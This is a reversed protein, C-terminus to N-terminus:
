KMRKIEQCGNTHTCLMQPRNQSQTQKLLGNNIHAVLQQSYLHRVFIFALDRERKVHIIGCRICRKVPLSARRQVYGHLKRSKFRNLVFTAM